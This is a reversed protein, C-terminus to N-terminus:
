LYDQLSRGHHPNEPSDPSESAIAIAEPSRGTSDLRQLRLQTALVKTQTQPRAPFLLRFAPVKGKDDYDDYYKFITFTTIKYENMCFIM